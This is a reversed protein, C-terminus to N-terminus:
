ISGCFILSPCTATGIVGPSVASVTGRARLLGLLFITGGDLYEGQFTMNPAQLTPARNKFIPSFHSKIGWASHRPKEVKHRQKHSEVFVYHHVMRYLLVLRLWSDRM